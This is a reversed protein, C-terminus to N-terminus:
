ALERGSRARLARDRRARRRDRRRRARRDRADVRGGAASRTSAGRDDARAHRVSEPGSWDVVSGDSYTQRVEFTYTKASARRPWSSSSRTRTPRCAAARDLHGETIVADEGSGTQQLRASGAPRPCSRTSRSATRPRHARGEDHDRGGERDARRAHVAPTKGSAVVRRASRPTPSPRGGPVALAALRPLRSSRRVSAGKVQRRAHVPRDPGATRGQGPPVPAVHRRGPRARRGEARGADTPPAPSRRAASRARAAPRTGPACVHTHFYDLSGERFFIAHALAGYWPTFKAPKGHPDTVTITM